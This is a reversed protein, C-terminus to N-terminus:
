KKEQFLYNEFEGITPTSNNFDIIEKKIFINEEFFQSLTFSFDNEKIM